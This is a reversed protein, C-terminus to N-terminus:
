EAKIQQRGYELQSYGLWGALHRSLIMLDDNKILGDGNIDAAEKNLLNEYGTWGAIARALIAKDGIRVKGDGNADGLLSLKIDGIVTSDTVTVDEIHVGYGPKYVALKYEGEDVDAFKYTQSYIGGADTIRGKETAFSGYHSNGIIDSKIYAEAKSDTYEKEVFNKLDKVSYLIMEANDTNDGSTVTGSVAISDGYDKFSTIKLGNSIDVRGSRTYRMRIYGTTNQADVIAEWYYYLQGNELFSGFEGISIEKVEVNANNVVTMTIDNIDPIKGSNDGFWYSPAIYYFHKNEDATNYNFEKLLTEDSRNPESWFGEDPLVITGKSYYRKGDYM